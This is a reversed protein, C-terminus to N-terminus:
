FRRMLGVVIGQIHVKYPDEWLSQMTANAPRLEVQPEAPPHAHTQPNSHIDGERAGKRHLYFRKVTAQNNIMAVVTEGNNAYSQKQVLIVDGDLIGDEIMSQGEVILAYTKGANRVMSAPVDIHEDHTFAEIPSGAAVRGLLPLSLAESAQPTEPSGKKLTPHTPLPYQPQPVVASASIREQLSNSVSRSSHLVQLARKQNGGPIHIYHKDQLQKLYRQVSNFSAFGFHEKIENFTPAVTKEEIFQEVFELVKLEKISLPQPQQPRLPQQKKPAM